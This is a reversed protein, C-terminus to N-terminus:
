TPLEYISIRLKGQSFDGIVEIVRAFKDARFPSAIQDDQAPIVQGPQFDVWREEKTDLNEFGSFHAHSPGRMFAEMISKRSNRDRYFISSGKWL